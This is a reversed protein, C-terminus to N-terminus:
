KKRKVKKPILEMQNNYTALNKELEKLQDKVGDIVKAPVHSRYKELEAVKVNFTKDWFFRTREWNEKSEVLGPSGEPLKELRILKKRFSNDLWQDYECGISIRRLIEVAKKWKHLGIYWCECEFSGKFAREPSIGAAAYVSILLAIQSSLKPKKLATNILNSFVQDQSVVSESLIGELNQKLREGEFCFAFLLKEQPILYEKEIRYFVDRKIENYFSIIKEKCKRSATTLYITTFIKWSPTQLQNKIHEPKIDYEALSSAFEKMAEDPPYVKDLIAKFHKAPCKYTYFGAFFVRNSFAQFVIKLVEAPCRGLFLNFEDELGMCAMKNLAPICCVFQGEDKPHAGYKLLLMLSKFAENNDDKVYSDAASNILGHYYQGLNPDLGNDLFAELFLANTNIAKVVLPHGAKKYDINLGKLFFFKLLTLDSQKLLDEAISEHSERPLFVPLFRKVIEENSNKAAKLLISRGVGNRNVRLLFDIVECDEDKVADSLHKENFVEAPLPIFKEAIDFRHFKLSIGWLTMGLRTRLTRDDKTLGHEQLNACNCFVAAVKRLYSSYFNTRLFHFRFALKLIDVVFQEIVDVALQQDKLRLAANMVSRFANRIKIGAEGQFRKNFFAKKEKLSTYEKGDRISKLNHSSGSLGLHEKIRHKFKQVKYFTASNPNPRSVINIINHYQSDLAYELSSKGSADPLLPDADNKVLVKAIRNKCSRVAVHLPTQGNVSQQNVNEGCNLLWRVTHESDLQVALHLWNMSGLLKKLFKILKIDDNSVAERVFKQNASENSFPILHEAVEFRHFKLSIDLVCLADKANLSQSKLKVCRCFIDAVQSLNFVNSELPHCRFALMLIDIVLQRNKMQIAAEMSSRFVRWVAAMKVNSKLRTRNSCDQVDFNTEVIEKLGPLTALVEARSKPKTLLMIIKDSKSELAYELSSKGTADPLLPDAGHKVLIEAIEVKKSRVAEHLPTRGEAQKNVETGNALLWRVSAKSDLDVALHLLTQNFLQENLHSGTCIMLDLLDLQNKYIAYSIFILDSKNESPKSAKFAQQFAQKNKSDIACLGQLLYPISNDVSNPWKEQNIEQFVKVVDQHEKNVISSIDNYPSVLFPSRDNAISM